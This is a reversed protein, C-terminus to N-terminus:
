AARVISPVGLEKCLSSLPGRLAASCVFKRTKAVRYGLEDAKADYLARSEQGVADRLLRALPDAAANEPVEIGCRDEPFCLAWPPSSSDPSAGLLAELRGGVKMGPLLLPGVRCRRVDEVEIGEVDSLLVFAVEAEHSVLRSVIRRFGETPATLDADDVTVHRRRWFGDLQTLLITYRVFQNGALDFRDLVVRFLASNRSPDHKRLAVTMRIWPMVEVDVLARYYAIRRALRSGDPAQKPTKKDVLFERALEHDIKVRLIERVIPLGNGPSIRVGDYLGHSGGHGLFGFHSCLARRPPFLANLRAARVGRVLRAVYTDSLAADLPIDTSSASTTRPPPEEITLAM